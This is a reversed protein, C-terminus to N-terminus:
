KTEGIPQKWEIQSVKIANLGIVEKEYTYSTKIVDYIGDPGMIFGHPNDATKATLVLRHLNTHGRMGHSFFGAVSEDTTWSSGGRDYLPTFTFSAGVTGNQELEEDDNMKLANRIYQEDVEMGRYVYECTPKHFIQEYWGKRLFEQVQTADKAPLPSAANFHADLKNYLYQEYSNNPEKPIGSRQLAFAYKNLPADQPAEPPHANMLQQMEKNVQDVDHHFQEMFEDHEDTGMDLWIWALNFLPARRQTKSFHILNNIFNCTVGDCVNNYLYQPVCSFDGLSEIADNVTNKFEKSQSLKLANAALRIAGEIGANMYKEDHALKSLDNLADVRDDGDAYRAYNEIELRIRTPVKHIFPNDETSLHDGDFVCYSAIYLCDDLIDKSM